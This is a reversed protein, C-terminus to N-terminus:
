RRVRDSRPAAWGGSKAHLVAYAIAAFHLNGHSQHPVRHSAGPTDGKSSTGFGGCRRVLRPIGCVSRGCSSRDSIKPRYRRRLFSRRYIGIVTSIAFSALPPKFASFEIPGGALWGVVAGSVFSVIISALVAHAGQRAIHWNRSWVGFSVALVQSLFPLFLAAVV